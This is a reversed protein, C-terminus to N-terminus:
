RVKQGPECDRDLTVLALPVEEGAALIMGNSEVGRITAPKLNAVVVVMRDILEDPSFHQALGAVMQRPQQEGIDVTMKYLRDTGPVQEVELVRGTRLDMKQFQEFSIMQASGEQEAGAEAQQAVLLRQQARQLDIRPFLPEGRAITTGAVLRGAECDEWAPEQEELGLQSWIEQSVMPMVPNILIAVVRLCDLVDYLVAALEVRKGEKHLRWPERTDIFKNTAAILTWIAELATRFDLAELATETQSRAAAIQEALGGAGPGPEPVQGELYREVLPLTRNLLNGLDNALDANFRALLAETSYSGDLGFTVERLLFYRMADVAVATTCGSISVLTRIEDYPDIIAGKSKSIKEGTDTVWWGHGFITEPLPLELAMLMAPWLTAHFRPLIDKGVLQVQPPWWTDLKATDDPYGAVTLYNILADFWVYISQTDDSLVPIDWNTRARSVCADRLGSELFALVENCRFEPLLFHPHEEIYRLLRDTYKSTRFFYAPQAMQEAPRGCDPCKGEVLEAEPFYTECPVCYWGEYEGLYIDGNAKLKEFVVQVAHCHGAESTRIFRDHSIHLREWMLKFHEVIEDTFAQPSMGREAAARAIKQGHEDTGTALLVSAGRLRHYRALTDAAITCYSHGIHPRDNVYYIPTTIYFSGTGQTDSAM